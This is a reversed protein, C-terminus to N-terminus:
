CALPEGLAEREEGLTKLRKCCIQIPENGLEVKRDAGLSVARGLHDAVDAPLLSAFEEDENVRTPRGITVRILDRPLKGTRAVVEDKRDAVDAGGPAHM